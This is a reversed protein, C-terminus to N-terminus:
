GRFLQSATAYTWLCGNISLYVLHLASHLKHQDIPNMAIQHFGAAMDLTTFYKAGSLADLSEDIRPLPFADCVTM